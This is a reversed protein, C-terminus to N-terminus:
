ASVKQENASKPVDLAAFILVAAARQKLVYQAVTKGSPLRLDRTEIEVGSDRLDKIRAARTKTMKVIHEFAAYTFVHFDCDRFNATLKLRADAIQSEMEQHTWENM